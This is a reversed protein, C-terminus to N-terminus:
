HTPPLYTHALLIHSPTSILAILLHLRTLLQDKDSELFLTGRRRSISAFCPALILNDFSCPPPRSTFVFSAAFHYLIQSLIPEHTTHRTLLPGFCICTLSLFLLFILLSLSLSLCERPLTGTMNQANKTGNALHRHAVGIVEQANPAHTYHQTHRCSHLVCSTSTVFSRLGRTVNVLFVVCCEEVFGFICFHHPSGM